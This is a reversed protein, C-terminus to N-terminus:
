AARGRPSGGRLIRHVDTKARVLIRIGLAVSTAVASAVIASADCNQALGAMYCLTGAFVLWAATDHYSVVWSEGRTRGNSLDRLAAITTDAEILRFAFAFGLPVSFVIGVNRIAPDGVVNALLSATLVTVAFGLAPLSYRIRRSIWMYGRHWLTKAVLVLGVAAVLFGVTVLGVTPIITRVAAINEPSVVLFSMALLHSVASITLAISKFMYPRLDSFTLDPRHNLEDARHSLQVVPEPAIVVERAAAARCERTMEDHPRTVRAMGDPEACIEEICRADPEPSHAELAPMNIPRAGRAWQEPTERFVRYVASRISAPKRIGAWHIKRKRQAEDDNSGSPSRAGDRRWRAMLARAVNAGTVGTLGVALLTRRLATPVPTDNPDSDNGEIADLEALFRAVFIELRARDLIPQPSAVPYISTRRWRNTM